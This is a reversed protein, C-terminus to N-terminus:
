ISIVSFPYVDLDRQFSVGFAGTNLPDDVFKAHLRFISVAEAVASVVNCHQLGDAGADDHAVRRLLQLVSIQRCIGEVRVAYFFGQDPQAQDSSQASSFRVGRLLNAYTVHEGM